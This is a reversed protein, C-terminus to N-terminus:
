RVQSSLMYLSTMPARHKADQLACLYGGVERSECGNWRKEEEFGLKLYGGGQLLTGGAGGEQSKQM